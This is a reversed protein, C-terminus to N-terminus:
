QGVMKTLGMKNIQKFFDAPITEMKKKNEIEAAIRADEEQKRKREEAVRRIEEEEAELKTMKEAHSKWLESVQPEQEIGMEKTYKEFVAKFKPHNLCAERSKKALTIRRDEASEGRKLRM